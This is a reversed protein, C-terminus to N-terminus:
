PSIAIASASDYQQNPFPKTSHSPTSYEPLFSHVISGRGNNLAALGFTYLTGSSDFALSSSQTNVTAIPSSLSPRFVAVPCSKNAVYLDGSPAFIMASTVCESSLHDLTFAFAPTTARRPYVEIANSGLNAVYLNQLRDIALAVPGDIGNTITYTPSTHGPSYVTVNGGFVGNGDACNKTPCNAVYVLGSPDVAIASPASVGNTIVYKPSARGLAYISVSGAATSPCGGSCNLLFLDGAAIRLEGASSAGSTIAYSPKAAGPNYVTVSGASANAVYLKGSPDFALSAPGSIGSTIQRVPALSTPAYVLIASQSDSKLVYLEGSPRSSSAMHGYSALGIATPPAPTCGWLRLSCLKRM